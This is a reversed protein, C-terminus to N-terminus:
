RVVIHEYTRTLATTEALESAGLVIVGTTVSNFSSPTLPATRKKKGIRRRLLSRLADPGLCGDTGHRKRPHLVPRVVAYLILTGLVSGGSIGPVCPLGISLRGDFHSRVITYHTRRRTGM